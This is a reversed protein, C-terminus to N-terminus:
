AMALGLESLCRVDLASRRGVRAYVYLERAWDCDHRGANTDVHAGRGAKRVKRSAHSWDRSSQGVPIAMVLMRPIL